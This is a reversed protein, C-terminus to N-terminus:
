SNQNEMEHKRGREMKSAYYQELVYAIQSSVSRKSREADNIIIKDLEITVVVSRVEHTDKNLAM